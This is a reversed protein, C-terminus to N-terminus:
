KKNEFHVTGEGPNYIYKMPIPKLNLNGQSDLLIECLKQDIEDSPTLLKLKLKETVFKHSNVWKKISEAILNYGYEKFKENKSKLSTFYTNFKVNQSICENESPEILNDNINLIQIAFNSILSAGIAEAGTKSINNSSIDLEVIKHNSTILESISSAGEDGLDNGNLSLCTLNNLRKCVSCVEAAGVAQINCYGLDIIELELNNALAECMKKSLKPGLEVKSIRFETLMSHKNLAEIFKESTYLVSHGNKKSDHRTNLPNNSLNIVKLSSNKEIYLTLIRLEESYLKQNSLDLISIKNHKLAYLPLSGGFIRLNPIRSDYIFKILYELTFDNIEYDRLDCTYDENFLEPASPAHELGKMLEVPVSDLLKNIDILEDRVEQINKFRKSTNTALIKIFFSIIGNSIMLDKFEEPCEWEILLERHSNHDPHHITNISFDKPSKGTIAMFLLAGISYIDGEQTINQKPIKSTKRYEEALEKHEPSLFDEDRFTTDYKDEPLQHFYPSQSGLIEIPDWIALELDLFGLREISGELLYVSTPNINSHIVGIKHLKELEILLDLGFKIVLKEPMYPKKWRSTTSDLSRLQFFEKLTMQAIEIVSIRKYLLGGPLEGFETIAESNIKNKLVIERFYNQRFNKDGQIGTVYILEFTNNGTNHLMPKVNLLAHKYKQKYISSIDKILEPLDIIEYKGLFLNGKQLYSIVPFPNEIIMTSLTRIYRYSEQFIEAFKFCEKIIEQKFTDLDISEGKCVDAVYQDLQNRDLPTNQISGIECIIKMTKDLCNTFEVANMSSQEDFCYLSFLIKLRDELKGNSLILLHTLLEISEIEEGSEYYKKYNIQIEENQIIAKQFENPTMREPNRLKKWRLCLTNVKDSSISHM